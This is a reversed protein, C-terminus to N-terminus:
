PLDNCAASYKPHSSALDDCKARFSPQSTEAPQVISLTRRDEYTPFVLMKEISRSPSAEHNPPIM